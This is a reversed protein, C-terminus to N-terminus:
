AVLERWATEVALARSFAVNGPLRELDLVPDLRWEGPMIERCRAIMSAAAGAKHLRRRAANIFPRALVPRMCNSWESLRAPWGPGDSFRFGYSSLQDAVGHHFRAILRSEFGGANKWVLPLRCTFRVTKLDVLPTAYYGHRAAVSNNVSMWHHCRFLPYLLEVEERGLRRGALSRDIGLTTEISAVMRDEYAALGHRRRFAGPDFGRYFARV